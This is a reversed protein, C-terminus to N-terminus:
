IWERDSWAMFIDGSEKIRDLVQRNSGGRIAQTALLGARRAPGEEIETRAREFWYCVLDPLGSIRNRYVKMLANCYDDGLSPRMKRSGLVPPNGIIVDAEPWAPEVPN